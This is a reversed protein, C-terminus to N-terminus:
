AAAHARHLKVAVTHHGCQPCAPLRHGGLQEDEIQKEEYAHQLEELAPPLPAPQVRTAAAEEWAGRWSCITCRLTKDMTEANQRLGPAWPLGPRERACP